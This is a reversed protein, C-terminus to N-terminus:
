HMVYTSSCLKEDRYKVAAFASATNVLGQGNFESLRKVAIALAAFPKEDRYKETAFAWATNAVDQSNSESLPREAAMSLDAFLSRQWLIYM